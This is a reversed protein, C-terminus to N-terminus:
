SAKDGSRVLTNTVCIGDDSNFNAEIIFLYAAQRKRLWQTALAAAIGRAHASRMTLNITPGHFGFKTCCISTAAGANANIFSVPSVRRNSKIENVVKLATAKPFAGGYHIIGVHDRRAHLADAWIKYLRSVSALVPWITPDANKIGKKMEDDLEHFPFQEIVCADVIQFSEDITSTENM